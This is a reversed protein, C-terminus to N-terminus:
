NEENLVERYLKELEDMILHGGDTELFENLMINNYGHKHRPRFVKNWIEDLKYKYESGRLADEHEEREEPLSFEIVAKM